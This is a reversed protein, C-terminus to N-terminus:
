EYRLAIIPDLVAAQRAPWVGFAVGVLASFALAILVTPLSFVFGWGAIQGIVLSAGTGVAIGLVGGLFSLVVAEVLFQALVDRRRAGIAKRIGIERTRERVSVLMINMIGIGGVALSISGIGLLLLTLSESVSTAVDLLQDQTSVNFDTDETGTLGHAARLTATVIASAVSTNTGEALSVAITGLSDGGAFHRQLTSLPVVIMNDGQGKAQLIGVITFPLGGIRVEAGLDDEGVGLTEAADAGLVALRLSREEAAANLFAGQWVEHARISLYDPTTGVISTTASETEYSVVQQSSAEPAVADVMALEALTSADDLSLTTASGPAGQVLGGIQGGASVTLLNTGLNGISTSIQVGSGQGVAVVAVVSAVGIIVGLMTLGSRMPNARLRQLSLRVLERPSM